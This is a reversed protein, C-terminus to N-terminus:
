PIKETCDMAIEQARSMLGLVQYVRMMEIMLESNM